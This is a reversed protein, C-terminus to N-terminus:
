LEEWSFVGPQMLARCARAATVTGQHLINLLVMSLGAEALMCLCASELLLKKDSPGTAATLNSLGAITKVPFGLLEPLRRIVSLLEQNRIAGDQWTVPVIVPDLILRGREIGAACSAEFVECAVQLREECSSPVHGDPRLLYCIVDADFKAALVLMADRKAPELSFGNIVARNKCARLGAEMARPEATDIVLPLGTEAQAAEVLFCMRSGADRGLPGPNIDLAGAGAAQCQRVLQRIPEPDMAALAQRVIRSSTTLNDAILLMTIRVIHKPSSVSDQIQESYWRQAPKLVILTAFSGSIRLVTQVAQFPLLGRFTTLFATKKLSILFM